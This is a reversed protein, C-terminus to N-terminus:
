AFVRRCFLAERTVPANNPAVAGTQLACCKWGAPARAVAGREKVTNLARRTPVVACHAVAAHAHRTIVAVRNNTTPTNCKGVRNDLCYALSDDGATGIAEVSLISRTMRAFPARRAEVCRRAERATLIVNQGSRRALAPRLHAPSTLLEDLPIAPTREATVAEVALVRRANSAGVVALRARLTPAVDTVSVEPEVYSRECTFRIVRKGM